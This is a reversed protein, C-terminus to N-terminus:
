RLWQIGLRVGKLLAGECLSVANHPCLEQCCYCRICRRYDIVAKRNVMSIAAPPCHAACRGCGACGPSIEPRATLHNQGFSVLWAPLRGDLSELNKPPKFPVRVDKGSGALELSALPPALKQAMAAATVPLSAEHFGMVQAMVMDVAFGNTGALLIGAEKPSGNRPGNGEMGVVGDIIYLVPAILQNLDVLMAAFESRRKMRLHFQAKDPGVMFGFLNKVGGTIGMFSHTKMKAVSIVKDVTLLDKALTFKKMMVGAHFSVDISKEFPLLLVGEERCVSYIGCKEAAKQTTSVGPSDGVVPIAGAARVQRIVARVVEPHTTVAKDPPLGEVMNPKILVTEGAGVLSSMGGLLGCLEKMGNEVNQYSYSLVKSLAVKM